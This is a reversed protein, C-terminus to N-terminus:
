PRRARPRRRRPRRSRPRHRRPRRAAAAAKATMSGMPPTKAGLPVKPPLAPARGARLDEDPLITGGPRRPRGPAPSGDDHRPGPGGARDGRRAARRTPRPITAPGTRVSGVGASPTARATPRAERKSRAEDAIDFYQALEAIDGLRKVDQGHALDAVRASVVGSIIWQQLTALERCSRQEGNQLRILWQREVRRRDTTTRAPRRRRTSCPPPRRTARAPPCPRSWRAAPGGGAAGRGREHERAPPDQVHPRLQHVQGDCWRAEVASRRARVRDPVERLPRGYSTVCSRTTTAAAYWPPKRAQVQVEFAEGDSSAAKISAAGGLAGVGGRGVADISARGSRPRRARRAAAPGDDAGTTSTPGSAATLEYRLHSLWQGDRWVDDELRGVYRLRLKEIVRRSAVNESICGVTVKHLSITRFACRM